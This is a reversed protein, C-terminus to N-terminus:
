LNTKSPQHQIQIGRGFPKEIQLKLLDFIEIGDKRPPSPKLLRFSKFTLLKKIYRPSKLHEFKIRVCAEQKRYHQQNVEIPKIAFFKSSEQLSAPANQPSPDM